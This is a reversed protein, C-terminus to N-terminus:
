FYAITTDTEKSIFHWPLSVSTVALGQLMKFMTEAAVQAMEHPEHAMSSIRINGLESLYSNDFSVVTLEKPVHIKAYRLEKLLWYAIEDNYCVVASCNKLQRHMFSVLFSTDQKQELATLETTSFWTFNEDCVPLSSDRLAYSLGKFRELGQLDDNKFIGAIQRHNHQILLKGLLYGGHFNDDQICISGTLEPYSSHLFVLLTGHSRLKEYLDINPNPLASKCGEVLIGRVPTQLLETLIEREKAVRNQTTYQLLSYGKGGLFQRLDHLLAPYIYEQDSSTILAIRNASVDALLGTAYSGSGRRKEILGEKELLSLAQRVTQRSVDYQICLSEETPLKYIGLGLNASLKEKLLEALRIYKAAM